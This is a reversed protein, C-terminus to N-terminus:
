GQWAMMCVCTCLQAHMIAHATLVKDTQRNDGQEPRTRTRKRTHVCAVGRARTEDDVEHVAHIYDLSVSTIVDRSSSLCLSLLEAVASCQVAHWRRGLM